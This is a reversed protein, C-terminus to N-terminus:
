IMLDMTADATHEFVQELEPNQELIGRMLVDIMYMVGIKSSLSGGTLPSEPSAAVLTQTCLSALPSMEINSLCVSQISKRELIRAIHVLESTSGSSSVFVWVDKDAANTARMSAMHTDSYINTPIGIRVLRYYLYQAIVQSAGVGVIHVNSAGNFTNCVSIVKSKNILIHTDKIARVAENEATTFIDSESEEVADTTMSASIDKALAMRFDSYGKFGFDRCMRVVTAESTQTSKALDTITQFQVQQANVSVYQAVLRQKPSLTGTQSRLKTLISIHNM